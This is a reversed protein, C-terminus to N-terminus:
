GRGRGCFVALQGERRERAAGTRAEERPDIMLPQHIAAAALMAAGEHAFHPAPRRPPDADRERCREKRAVADEDLAALGAGALEPSAHPRQASLSALHALACGPLRDLDPEPRATRSARRDHPTAH